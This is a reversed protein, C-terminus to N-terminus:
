SAARDRAEQVLRAQQLNEAHEAGYTGSRITEAFATLMNAFHNDPPLARVAAGAATEVLLAPSFGPPATFARKATLKGKSGWIEYGCQYYNDFGFATESVLGASNELYIAGGLDVDCDAGTRLTAAKVRFGGGLMFTTAKLTYAGADLLAGGGLARHYRINALGDSFPPFGFASRFCRVEGLLGSNLLARVEAHQSHFRFQFNEMLLLQRAQALAVMDEVERLSCGLSKECLVHKGASLCRTVWEAHLGTPLPIYVADVEPHDALADYGLAACGYRAALPAAKDLSRSAVGTLAFAPHAHLAPLISRVAINACGLVGIRIKDM